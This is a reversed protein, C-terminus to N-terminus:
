VGFGGSATTSFQHLDDNAIALRVSRMNQEMYQKGSALTAKELTPVHLGHLNPPAFQHTSAVHMFPPMGAVPLSILRGDGRLEWGLTRALM